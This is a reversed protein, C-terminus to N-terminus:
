DREGALLGGVSVFRFGRARGTALIGPLAEIGRSPDSIGDHLIVIAGPALNKEVLWRIYGVPPHAPDHPYASGLVCLYGRERALRLQRPWAVGGPPRFLKRSGTLGIAKETRGLYSAFEAESHTLTSRDMFYHNGVEHGAAKIRGVLEPHRLAREGILFFTATAGHEELISLMRPTHVPDPGDDFTLAVLPRGTRVRWVVNPTFAELVTLLVMPETWSVALGAATAAVGGLLLGRVV